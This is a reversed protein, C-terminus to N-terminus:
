TPVATKVPLRAVAIHIEGDADIAKCRLDYSTGNQGAKVRLNVLAGDISKDGLVNTPAADALGEGVIPTITADTLNEADGSFDFTVTKIEEPDKTPLPMIKGKLNPKVIWCRPLPRVRWAPSGPEILDTGGIASGGSGTGAGAGTGGEAVADATGGIATGGTGSGSGTGTGGPATANIQGTANGGSGSGTGTGTGGEATASGGAAGTAEGGAGTGSGTGTGGAATANTQGSADGGTASGTGTGTGGTAVGSVQGAADGGSGSGTGAGIGGDAVADGIMGASYPFANVTAGNSWDRFRRYLDHDYRDALVIHQVSGTLFAAPSSATRAGLLIIQTEEAATGLLIHKAGQDIRGLGGREGDWWVNMTHPSGDALNNDAYSQSGRAWLGPEAGVTSDVYSHFTRNAQTAGAKAIVTGTTGSSTFKQLVMFQENADMFLSANGFSSVGLDMYQSGNFTLKSGDWQPRKANDSQRFYLGSDGVKPSWKGVNQGSATVPTTGAADQWMTTKDSADWYAGGLSYTSFAGAPTFVEAPTALEPFDVPLAAIVATSDATLDNYTPSGMTTLAILHGNPAEWLIARNYLGTLSGGKGGIMGPYGNGYAAPSQLTTPTGSRTVTLVWSSFRWIDRLIKNKALASLVINTDRPSSANNDLGHANVYTTQTMGLASARANMMSVFQTKAQTYTPSGGLAEKGIVYGIMAAASNDSPLQAMALLDYLNTVDGAQFTASTGESIAEALMTVSQAQLGIKTPKAEVLLLATMLKTMSAPNTEGSSLGKTYYLESTQLNQVYMRSATVTPPTIGGGTASGGTGIGTGTGTGGVVVASQDGTANGGSGSGSGTGIGGAVEANGITAVQYTLRPKPALLSSPNLSLRASEEPTPCRNLDAALSVTGFASNVRVTHTGTTFPMVFGSSYTDVLAGNLWLEHRGDKFRNYVGGIPAGNVVGAKKVGRGNQTSDGYYTGCWLTGSENTFASAGNPMYGNIVVYFCANYGGSTNLILHQSHATAGAIPQIAFVCSFDGSGVTVPVPWDTSQFAPNASNATYIGQGFANLKIRADTAHRALVKGPLNRGANALRLQNANFLLEVADRFEPAVQVEVQPQQTRRRKSSM